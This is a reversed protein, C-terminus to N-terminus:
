PLADLRFLFAAMAQRSVPGSPQYLPLGSPQATGTSINNVFMWEIAAASTANLPVDGFRQIAPPTALNAGKSRALFIAMSQRSVPDLPKYLPLGTAQTTGLSIGQAYMWEIEKYATSNPSVDAFSPTGPPTFQAGSLRYLFIAMAQRSVANVPLYLPKGVQQGTGVSLGSRGMWEIFPFFTGSPDSADAFFPNHIVGSFAAASCIPPALVIENASGVSYQGDFWQPVFGAAPDPSPISLGTSEMTWQMKYTGAGLGPVTYSGPGARSDVPGEYVQSGVSDSGTSSDYVIVRPFINLSESVVTQVPMGTGDNLIGAISCVPGLVQNIGTTASNAGVVTVPTAADYSLKESYWEKGYGTLSFRLRYQGAVLGGISYNGSADTNDSFECVDTATCALVVVDELNVSGPGKVNGSITSGVALVADRSPYAGTTVSFTDAAALSTKNNWWESIYNEATAYKLTYTGPPVGAFSFNGSADANRSTVRQGSEYLTVVADALNTTPFGKVNGSITAGVALNADWGINASATAVPFYDATAQSAKNNWWEDVYIGNSDYKLTYSGARLGMVTFNGSADTSASTQRGTSSLATVTVGSLNTAPAGKVNGSIIAGVDLVANRGTVSAGDAVAFAGGSALSAANNWYESTYNTNFAPFFFLRYSGPALGSITYGGGGNTTATGGTFLSGNFATVSVGALPTSGVNTVTGSISATLSARAPSAGLSALLGALLALVLLWVLSAERSSNRTALSNSRQPM